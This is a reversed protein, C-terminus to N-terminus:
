SLILKRDSLFKRIQELINNGIEDPNLHNGKQMKLLYNCLEIIKIQDHANLEM